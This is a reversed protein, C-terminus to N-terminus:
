NVNTALRIHLSIAGHWLKQIFPYEILEGKQTTGLVDKASIQDFYDHDKKRKENIRRFMEPTLKLGWGVERAQFASIMVGAGGSKPLFAREGKKGVWQKCGFSFQNYISEDQGLIIVPKLTNRVSTNREFEGYKKIAYKQLCDHDDVHFEIM